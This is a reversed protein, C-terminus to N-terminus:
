TSKKPGVLKEIDPVHETFFCRHDGDKRQRDLEAAQANLESHDM